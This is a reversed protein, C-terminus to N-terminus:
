LLSGGVFRSGDDDGSACLSAPVAAAAAAASASLEWQICGTHAAMSAARHKKFFVVIIV